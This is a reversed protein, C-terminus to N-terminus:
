FIAQIAVSVMRSFPYSTGRETKVSSLIFLDNSYASVKLSKLFSNKVLGSDRFDYYVNVSALTLTNCDEVFRSTPRTSSRDTISKYLAVDGPKQWRDTFVRRDTNYSLDANEVKDILTQNYIQGGLRYTFIAGIGFNHIEGNFGINGNIKPQADGSAVLDGTSYEYTIEGNKKVFIEKGNVPDIGLSTVAWITNMSQGEEYRALPLNSLKEDQENNFQRLSESIKKLKNTNQAVSAFLRIYNRKSKSEWVRASLHAEYGRNEAEGLNERYTTFGTSQPTTIDTLMGETTATYYDFRANLLNNFLVIDLGVNQDYKKQWQLNPNALGALYSGIAGNYSTNTFYKVTALAEYTSFGQSGTYGTSFRLKLQNIQKSEKLFSENHINWGAGLSWFSGWRNNAGFESSGTIRYNADFLYRNNHSYNISAIGGASRSVTEYGGPSGDKKYQTGFIIHDMNDNPFGEAEMYVNDGTINSINVQGNFFLLNKGFTLSYNVGLDGNLNLNEGNSKYYSGKQFIDYNVFDTHSAPKFIDSSPSKKTLGFRGIFRLNDLVSWEAYLNNTIDTYKSLYKTNITANWMPNGVKTANNQGYNYYQVLRGQEDYLRSYPNMQAYNEFAGWPSDHAENYVVSLKNRFLVKKTRYTLSIGGSFTNRDSGKMVGLINNYSMDVGYLLQDSGGELYLSHKQGTGTRVPQALWDTNVGALVEKLKNNYILQYNLLTEANDSFYLGGLREAELKEAANTLNYSTLDPIEINSSGNYSIRIQGYAPRKTEIVVVGNAAKSGYIAKATADKLLTISEVLNIDLDIIKTLDSEFGDLIFLPLNPNSQDGRLDSFGTQGRLQFDPLVNPNSGATLNDIQLFVPDINKLSQLVNQNGVRRLEEGKVTSVAGTYTNAKRTFAGIVIVEGIETEQPTLSINYIGSEAIEKYVNKYGLLSYILTLKGSQHTIKYNGESDTETGKNVGEIQVSVGPLSEGTKVDTIKGTIVYEGEQRAFVSVAMTLMFALIVVCQKKIKICCLGNGGVQGAIWKRDLMRTKNM